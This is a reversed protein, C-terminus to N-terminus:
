GNKPTSQATSTNTFQRIVDATQMPAEIMPAHGINEFIHIKSNPILSKFIPANGASLVRDHRGWAVLTPAKIRTLENKFDYNHESEFIDIWIKKNAELRGVMKEASVATIPFPSFPANEMVFDVLFPFDDVSKPILPNEGKSLYEDYESKVDNIFGPDLLIASLIDDPYTAAYLATIAGGMSNGALHFPKDSISNMFTHLTKVQLDIDYNRNLDITSEGHGPLDLTIIHFDDKLLASLLLWNEKYAGFGHVFVLTPKKGRQDNELYSIDVGDVQAHKKVTNAETALHDMAAQYIDYRYYMGGVYIGASAIVVILCLPLLLKKM